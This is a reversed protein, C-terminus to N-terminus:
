YLGSSHPILMGLHNLWRSYTCRFTGWPLPLRPEDLFGWVSVSVGLTDKQHPIADSPIHILHRMKMTLTEQIWRWHKSGGGGVNMPLPTVIRRGIGWKGVSGGDASRFLFTFFLQNLYDAQKSFQITEFHASLIIWQVNQISPRPTLAPVTCVFTVQLFTVDPNWCNGGKWVIRMLFSKKKM